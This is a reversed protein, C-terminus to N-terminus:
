KGHIKERVNKNAKGIVHAMFLVACTGLVYKSIPEAAPIFLKAFDGYAVLLQSGLAAGGVQLMQLLVSSIFEINPLKKNMLSAKFCLHRNNWIEASWYVLWLLALIVSILIFPYNIGNTIPTNEAAILM